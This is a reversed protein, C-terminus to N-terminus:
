VMELPQPARYDRRATRTLSIVGRKFLWGATTHFDLIWGREELASKHEMVVGEVQSTHCAGELGIGLFIWLCLCAVGAIALWVNEKDDDNDFVDQIISALGLFLLVIPIEVVFRLLKSRLFRGNYVATRLDDWATPSLGPPAAAHHMWPQQDSPFCLVGFVSYEFTENEQQFTPNM